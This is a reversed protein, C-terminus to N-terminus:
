DSFGFTNRGASKARYLAADARALLESATAPAESAPQFAVGISTTVRLGQGDIDFATGGVQDVIKQAIAAAAERAHLNELVVVFEDGALRAVTDTNRVSALLRRAYEMLVGDGTAHGLTDNITKFHDIDLFLVALASETRQARAIAGPLFENFALRNALGTLTDVRALDILKREVAKLASIDLSLSFIGRTIGDPGTDPVYSVRTIRQADKTRTQAEFEVREGALARQIMPKRSLYLESGAVDSLHHGLITTPEVGLWERYTANAFTIKEDRDIYTILAPLNDTITRLRMESEAQRLEAKKLATINFTMLYFGLFKGDLNRDPILNVQFYGTKGHLPARVPFRVAKGERVMSLYPLQQQYVVDGVARRLDVGTLPGDDLGAMRRARVNAFLCNEDTDFYGVLAPINDTVDRLRKEQETLAKRINVEDTIDFTMAFVGQVVGNADKDPIYHAKFTRDGVGIAPDGSKEIVVTEGALARQYSDAVLAFDGPGRVEPMLRGVMARDKHLAKVKANVFTYKLSSDVHSVLAPINDAIIRVQAESHALSMEIRKRETVDSTMAYYGRVQGAQDRDPILETQFFRDQEGHRADGRGEFSVAEGTLVRHIAADLAEDEGTVKATRGILQAAGRDLKKCLPANVFTYRGQADVHSVMAPLNDTIDRLFKESSKRLRMLEDFTRALDGIEDRAYTRPGASELAANDVDLMHRHLYKLPRLQWSVVALAVAGALVGLVLAGVWAAREIADIRAFAEASPYMAGLMWNTQQIRKFAYLGHVGAHNVGEAVGEYGEMPRDIEPNGVGKLGTQNIILETRPHDIVVGEASTIFLYGTEGFKVESLEGLLNREKLNIAGSIVFKVNGAPDLVPETVAVQALGSLRNLYPESIVSAKSAVTEQFYPRDKINVRGPQVGSLSAILDGDVTFFAINSFAQRLSQHRELFAQLAAADAFDNSEVSDAFTELLTHRSVFKQNVTNAVASLRAFEESEISAKMSAKVLQLAVTGIAFTAALVVAAVGLGLRTNLSIRINRLGSSNM